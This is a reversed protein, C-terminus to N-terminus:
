NHRRRQAGITIRAAPLVSCLEMQRLSACFWMSKLRYGKAKTKGARAEVIAPNNMRDLDPKGSSCASFHIAAPPGTPRVSLATQLVPVPFGIPEM